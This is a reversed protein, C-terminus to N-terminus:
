ERIIYESEHEIFHRELADILPVDCTDFARDLDDFEKERAM